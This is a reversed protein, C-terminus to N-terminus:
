ALQQLLASRVEAVVESWDGTQKQRFLHMGPYWPTDSRELQWRWCTNARNLLWVPKGLAGALHCASTDVSILLDLNAILGSTDAFDQLEASCDRVHSALPHNRLQAVATEGVQVSYFELQAHEQALEVVPALAEFPLSREGDIRVADPHTQASSGAWVLGVRLSRNRPLRQLWAAWADADPLLYPARPIDAESFSKCALPLSMLPCHYDFGPRMFQDSSIVQAAGPVKALLRVLAPPVELIVRAGLAAVQPLYRVFQLTDGFGQEAHILITKDQLSQQGLWLPQLFQRVQTRMQETAWRSEYAPWGNAFDGQRLKLLADNWAASSADPKLERARRYCETAESFRYLQELTSGRNFWLDPSSDDLAMARDYAELAEMPRQMKFLVFGRNSQAEFFDPQVELAHDYARLAEDFQYSDKCTNGLNFWAEIFDPRLAVAREYSARADRYGYFEHQLNGLQFWADPNDPTLAAAREIDALAERNRKLRRLAAGRALLADAFDPTQALIEDYRQVAEADRGLHVLAGAHDFYTDRHDPNLEIAHALQAEAAEWDEQHLKLMGYLYNAEFHDPLKVLVKKYLEEAPALDGKQHLALAKQLLILSANAQQHM